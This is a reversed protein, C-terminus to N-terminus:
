WGSAAIVPANLHTGAMSGNSTADGYNYVGGAATAVWYGAGDATAFVATARDGGLAGQPNGYQGADGFASLQGDAYLVWYGGGDPTRVASTVAVNRSPPAGLFPADGFAYVNGTATVLWYGNGTADPMVAVAAGSCGGIGPCSGAFRADGFAFVGGDSAVMFYGADDTSPVAAVIPAALAHGGSGAPAFGLGPLSGYFGADGFAFIGGDSGVLWYGQRDATPSIGMVPRQLTLNGTSGFFAASGFSFIGGDSGVLWYGDPIAQKVTVPPATVPPATVPPAAVPPVAVTFPGATAGPLVGNAAAVSYTFSTTGAPPTGSVAGTAGDIGLWGPAGTLSYTPAPSGSAAFTYRYSAGPSVTGPPSEATFVPAVLTGVAVSRSAAATFGDTDVVTLTISFVGASAYTHTPTPGSTGVTGDGFDWNWDVIGNPVNAVSSASGDFATPSGPVPSATTVALSVTPVAQTLACGDAPNMAYDENSFEQQLEYHDGNIVQNWQAGAGGGLATGFNWACEDGNENGVSDRWGLGTPDTITENHEHSILSLASDLTPSGNPSESGICTYSYATPYPIDAYLAIASGVTAGSHYGCYGSYATDSCTGGAAADLAGLCTEVQPPLVVLYIDGMGTPLSDTTLTSTIEARIQPDTLCATYNEGNGSDPTCAGGSPFADSIAVPAGAHVLYHIHPTGIQLADTYQTAVAYVNSASGSAAAVDTLYTDVGAEYGSPFSYGAPAWFLAHVTNEGTTSPTGVVSGGGSLLPPNGGNYGSSLPSSAAPGSASRPALVTCGAPAKAHVMGFIGAPVAQQRCAAPAAPAPSATVTTGVVGAFLPLLLLLSGVGRARWARRTAPHTIM